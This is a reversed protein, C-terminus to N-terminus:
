NQFLNIPQNDNVKFFTWTVLNCYDLKWALKQKQLNELHMEIVYHENVGDFDGDVDPIEM